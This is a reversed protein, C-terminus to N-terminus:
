LVKVGKMAVKGLKFLGQKKVQPMALKMVHQRPEGDVMFLPTMIDRIM